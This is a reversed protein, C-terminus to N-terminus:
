YRAPVQLRRGSIAHGPLIIHVICSITLSWKMWYIKLLHPHLILTTVILLISILTRPSHQGKPYSIKSATHAVCPSRLANQNERKLTGERHNWVLKWKHVATGQKQLLLAKSLPAVTKVWRFRPQTWIYNGRESNFTAEYCSRLFYTVIPELLIQSLLSVFPEPM